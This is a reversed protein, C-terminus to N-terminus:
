KFFTYLVLFIILGALILTVQNFYRYAMEGFREGYRRLVFAVLFFRAGRGLFSALVFPMLPVAFFGAAITFIKYPIPTFAAVLIAWFANELFKQEVLKFEDALHYTEIIYTGLSEFFVAGVLYGALGGLVSFITTLWAYYLFREGKKAILIATLVVDPPIPFFSSEAFSITALFKGAQKGTAHRLIWARSHERIKALIELM